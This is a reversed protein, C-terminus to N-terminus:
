SKLARKIMLYIARRSKFREFWGAESSLGKITKKLNEVLEENLSLGLKHSYWQAFQEPTIAGIKLNEILGKEGYEEIIRDIDSVIEPVQLEPKILETPKGIEEEPTVPAEEPKAPIAEPTVPVSKLKESISIEEKPLGEAESPVVEETPPPGEPPAKSPVEEPVVKEKPSVVAAEIVKVKKEAIIKEAKAVLESKEFDMIQESTIKHGIIGTKVGGVEKLGQARIIEKWTKKDIDNLFAVAEKQLDGKEWLKNSHISLKEVLENFKSPDKIDLINREPDFTFIEKIKEAEIGAVSHGKALEALNAAVNLSKAGEEEGFIGDPGLIDKMHDIAIMHFIRELHPPVGGKGIELSFPSKLGREIVVEPPVAEEPPGAPAEETGPPIIGPKSPAESPITKPPAEPIGPKALETFGLKQSLYDGLPGNLAFQTGVALGGVLGAAGAGWRVAKKYKENREKLIETYIASKDILFKEWEEKLNIKEIEIGFNKEYNEKEKQFWEEARRSMRLTVFGGTLTALKGLVIGKIFRQTGFLVAGGVGIVVGPLVGAAALGTAITSSIALKKWLPIRLYNTWLKKLGRVTLSDAKKFRERTLLDCEEMIDKIILFTMEKKFHPDEETIGLKKIKEQCDARIYQAKVENYESEIKQLEEKKRYKDVWSAKKNKELEKLEREKEAFIKRKEELNKLIEEKKLEEVKEKIEEIKIEEKEGETKRELEKKEEKIEEKTEVVGEKEEEPKERKKEKDGLFIDSQLELFKLHAEEEKSLPEGRQKKETLYYFEAKLGERLEETMEGRILKEWLEEKTFSKGEGVKKIMEWVGRMKKVKEELSLEKKPKEEEKKRELEGSKEPPPKPIEEFPNVM